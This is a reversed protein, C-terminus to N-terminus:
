MHMSGVHVCADLSCRQTCGSHILHVAFGCHRRWGGSRELGTENAETVGARVTGDGAEGMWRSLLKCALQAVPHLLSAHAAPDGHPPQPWPVRPATDHTERGQWGGCHPQKM